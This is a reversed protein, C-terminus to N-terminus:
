VIMNFFNFNINCMPAHKTEHMRPDFNAESFKPFKVQNPWPKSQHLKKKPPPSTLNLNRQYELENKSDFKALVQHALKVVQTKTVGFNAQNEHPENPCM